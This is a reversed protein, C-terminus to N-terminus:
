ATIAIQCLCWVTMACFIWTLGEGAQANAADYLGVIMPAAVFFVLLAALLIKIFKRM